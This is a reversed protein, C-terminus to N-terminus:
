PVRYKRELGKTAVMEGSELRPRFRSDRLLRTLRFGYAERAPDLPVTEVNRPRGRADVDFRAIVPVSNSGEASQSVWMINGAPLEVPGAYWERQLDLEGLEALQQWSARYHPAARKSSGNWLYWDGLVRNARAQEMIDGAEAARELLLELRKRGRASGADQLAQAQARDIDLAAEAAAAGRGLMMETERDIGFDTTGIVYLLDIQAYTLPALEALSLVRTDDEKTLRSLERWLSMLPKPQDPNPARLWQQRRWEIWDLTAALLAPDGPPYHQRALFYLYSKVEEASQYDGLRLYVDLQRKLTPLQLPSYLGENVRVLHVSRRWLALATRYDGRGAFYNAADLVTEAINQGYPGDAYEAERIRQEWADSEPASRRPPLPEAVPVDPAHFDVGFPTPLSDPDRAEGPSAPLLLPLCVALTPIFIQRCRQSFVQIM